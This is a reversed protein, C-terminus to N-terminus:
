AWDRIDKCVIVPEVSHVVRQVTIEINASNTKVANSKHAGKVIFLLVIEIFFIKKSKLHPLVVIFDLLINQIFTLCFICL